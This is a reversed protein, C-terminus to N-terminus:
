AIFYRFSLFLWQEMPSCVGMSCCIRIESVNQMHKWIFVAGKLAEELEAESIADEAETNQAESQEDETDEEQVTADDERNDVTQETQVEPTKWFESSSCATIGLPVAMVLTLLSLVKWKKM